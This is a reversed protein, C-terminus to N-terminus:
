RSNNGMSSGRINVVSPLSSMTFKVPIKYIEIVPGPNEQDNFVKILQAKEKLEKYRSIQVAYKNPENYFSDKFSNNIIIYNVSEGQYYSLPLAVIRIWGMDVLDFNNKTNAELQCSAAEYAIKSGRPLNREVWDKAITRKDLRNLKVGEKVDRALVLASFLGFLIVSLWATNRLFSKRQEFYKYFAYFGVGFFIAEFPLIPILWREWRLRAFGVIVIYYLLPFVLFYIGQSIKKFSFILLGLGAFITFFVGGIGNILVKKFYWIHNQIGPLREAGLQMGRAEYLMDKIAHRYDLMVFPAFIFFGIAICLLAKSFFTKIKLCDFLYQMTSLKSGSFDRMLCYILIPFVILGSPYKTSIAFGASLSSAILYRIKKNEDFFLFLFYVSSMMLMTATIDSRIFRSHEVHLPSISLSLAALLGVSNNFFRKSVLYVLYVTITAFVVMLVRGSYHPLVTNLAPHSYVMQKFESFHHIIGASFYYFFCVSFLVAFLPVLLYIIFSGPHGFWHPNMDGTVLIHKAPDVFSFEDSNYVYPFGFNIGNFRLFFAVFLIVYISKRDLFLLIKIYLQNIKNSM